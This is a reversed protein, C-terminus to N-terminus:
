QQKLFTDFADFIKIYSYYKKNKFFNNYIIDFLEKLKPNITSNIDMRLKINYAMEETDEIENDFIIINHEAHESSERCCYNCLHKKCNICYYDFIAYHKKCEDFNKNYTNIERIFYKFIDEITYEQEVIMNCITMKINDITIENIIPICKQCFCVFFSEFIEYFNDYDNSSELGKNYEDFLDSNLNKGDHNCEKDIM